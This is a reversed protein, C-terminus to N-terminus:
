AFFRWLEEVMHKTHQTSILSKDLKELIEAFTDVVVPDFYKGKNEQIFSLAEQWSLASRYPRDTTLADFVDAVAIIRACLPIQEGKLGEPYGTGNYKEHHYLICDKVNKWPFEINKLQEIAYVPHKEIEKREEPTLKGRKLLIKDDIKLKGIDHLFGGILLGKLSLEDDLLRKGILFAYYTTRASHGLTYPDKLEVKEGWQLAIELFNSEIDEISTKIRRKYFDIESFCKRAKTLFELAERFNGQGKNITGLELYVFGELEKDQVKGALEIAKELVTKTFTNKGKMHWYKSFAILYHVKSVLNSSIIFKRALDLRKKSEVLKNEATYVSSLTVFTKVLLDPDKVNYKNLYEEAKSLYYSAKGIENTEFYINGLNVLVPIYYKVIDKPDANASNAFYKLIKNFEVIAKDTKNKFLYLIARNNVIILIKRQRWNFDDVKNLLNEAENYYHLAKDIKGQRYKVIGLRHIITALEKKDGIKKFCDASSKFYKEAEDLRNIKMLVISIRKFVTCLTKDEKKQTFSSLLTKYCDLANELEGSNELSECKFLDVGEKVGLTIKNDDSSKM